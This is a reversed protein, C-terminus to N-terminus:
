SKDREEEYAEDAKDYFDKEQDKLTIENLWSKRVFYASSGYEELLPSDNILSSNEFFGPEDFLNQIDPWIVVTFDNEKM